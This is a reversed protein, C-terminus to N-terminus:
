MLRDVQRCVYKEASGVTTRGTKDACLFNFHSYSPYWYLVAVLFFLYLLYSKM